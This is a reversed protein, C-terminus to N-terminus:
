PAVRSPRGSSNVGPKYLDLSIRDAVHVRELYEAIRYAAPNQLEDGVALAARSSDACRDLLLEPNRLRGHRLMQPHQALRAERGDPRVPALAHVRQPRRRQLVDVYPELAEPADPSRAQVRQCSLDRTAFALM